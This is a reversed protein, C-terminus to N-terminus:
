DKMATAIDGSDGGLDGKFEHLLTMVEITTFTDDVESFNALEDSTEVTTDTTTVTDDVGSFDSLEDSTEVTTNTNEYTTGETGRAKGFTNKCLSRVMNCLSRSMEYLSGLGRTFVRWICEWWKALMVSMHGVALDETTTM